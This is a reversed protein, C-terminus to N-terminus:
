VSILHDIEGNKGIQVIFSDHISLIPIGKMGFHKIVDLAIKSDKNMIKLGTIKGKCFYKSIPEHVEKFKDILPRARTIGMEKLQEREEPNEHLWNNAAREATTEDKANLMSLLIAKLFLRVKPRNDLISYPDGSYQKGEAAYLLNPHLGSFDWEVIPDGNITIKKREDGSLGQYHYYGSTHLRGYWTFRDIFIAVLNAQLKRRCYRVDAKSNVDNVQKLIDRIRWTEATNKYNVLNGKSDKLIVLEIPKSSVGISYEPFLDLLQKTAFIRTERSDKEFKYGTEMIILKNDALTKILDKIITFGITNYRTLKWNNSNQSIRIPKWKQYFLNALVIEFAILREDEKYSGSFTLSDFRIKATEKLIDNSYLDRNFKIANHWFEGSELREKEREALHKRADIVIKDGFSSVRKM